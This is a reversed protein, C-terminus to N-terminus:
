GRGRLLQRAQVAMDQLRGRDPVREPHGNRHPDLEFGRDRDSIAQRIPGATLGPGDGRSPLVVALFGLWGTIWMLLCCVILSYHCM